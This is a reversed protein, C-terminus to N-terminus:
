QSAAVAQEVGSRDVGGLEQRPEPARADAAIVQHKVHWAIRNGLDNALVATRQVRQGGALAGVRFGDPAGNAGGVGAAVEGTRHLSRTRTFFTTARTRVLAM